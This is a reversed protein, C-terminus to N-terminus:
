VFRCSDRFFVMRKLRDRRHYGNALRKTFQIRGNLGEQYANNIGTEIARIIGDFHGRVTKALAKFNRSGDNEAWVVWRELHDRALEPPSSYMQRLSEKMAYSTAVIKNDKRIDLLAEREEDSLDRPDKLLAYRISKKREGNAQTSARDADLKKNALQILHFPDFVGEANPLHEQVGAIYNRGFDSAVVTINEPHGNHAILWERFEAIVDRNKGKSIFIIRGTDVDTVVTIYKHHKKAATEDVRIRRVWSLDMGDLYCDVRRDVIYDLVRWSVKLERSVAALSMQSMMRIATTEFARTYSVKPDAWPVKVQRISRCTGCQCRPVRAHIYCVTEGLNEHRWERDVYDHISLPTHCDPCLGPNGVYELHIHLVKVGDYFGSESSSIRWDENEVGLVFRMAGDLTTKECTYGRAPPIM